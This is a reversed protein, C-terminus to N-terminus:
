KVLTYDLVILDGFTRSVPEGALATLQKIVPHGGAATYEDMTQSFVVFYVHRYGQIATQANVNASIGLSDMSKAALTDNASGPEDAMFRSNLEPTYVTMPFFSLKNDHLIVDGKGAATSLFQGAQEFPSRPFKDYTISFPLTCIACAAIFGGILVKEAPKSRSLLVGLVAALGAYASLFARPVFMPRMVYSLIFLCVPPVLTMLVFYALGHNNKRNRFLSVTGLVTICLAAFLVFGLVPVPSPIDGFAMIVAQFVEVMGPLPTWFAHQVKAVQGPVLVLWPAYMCLAAAGVLSMWGLHKWKRKYLFYAYPILLGFGALAHSYLAGAGCTAMVLWKWWVLSRPDAARSLELASWDWGLILLTALSYMRIDQAHYFQLPSVALIAAAWIAAERNAAMEVMRYIVYIIGLSFLIGPLRLFAISTGLKEWFHLIFYYLPPMTDAATGSVISALPRGALLISFADDYQIGRTAVGLLRIVAAATLIGALPHAALRRLDAGGPFKTM